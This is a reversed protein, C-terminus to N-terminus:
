DGDTSSSAGESPTQVGDQEGVDGDADPAALLDAEVLIEDIEDSRYDPDHGRVAETYEAVADTDGLQAGIRALEIMADLGANPYSGPQAQLDYLQVLATYLQRQGGVAEIEQLGQNLYVIATPIDDRGSYAEAIGIYAELSKRDGEIIQGYQRIADSFNGMEMLLRAYRLRSSTDEPDLELMKVLVRARQTDDSSQSVADAYSALAGEMDAFAALVDGMGEHADANYSSRRLVYDFESEADNLEGALLHTQGMKLFIDLSSERDSADQYMEIALEYQAAIQEELEALREEDAASLPENASIEDRLSVAERLRAAALDGQAILLKVSTSDPSLEAVRSLGAQAEELEGLALQANVLRLLLSTDNPRLELAAEFREEALVYDGVDLALDGSSIFASIYTPDADILRAFEAEAATLDGLDLYLEGLRFTAENNGPDLQLIRNLFAEDVDVDIQELATLYADLAAQKHGAEEERLADLEALQDDSPEEIGELLLIDSRVQSAKSELVRGIYYGIYPDNTNGEEALRQYEALGLDIDERQLIFANILPFPIDIQSSDYLEGYWDAVLDRTVQAIYDEEVQDRVEDLQPTRAGETEIVHIIHYGFQTQVPNSYEGAELAFAAEEFEPVM